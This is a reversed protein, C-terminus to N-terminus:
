SKSPAKPAAAAEGAPCLFVVVSCFLGNAPDRSRLVEFRTAVLFAAAFFPRTRKTMKREIMATAQTPAPTTERRVRELYDDRVRLAETRRKGDRGVQLRVM